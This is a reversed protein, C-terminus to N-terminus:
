RRRLVFVTGVVREAGGCEEVARIVGGWDQSYDHGCIIEAGVSQAWRIDKLTEEYTHDADLFVLGPAQGRYGEFFANKDQCVIRVNHKEVAELLIVETLRRHDAPRLGCPNWCFNDVAILQTEPRKAGALVRTSTGFLIGVEVIPRDPPAERVLEGLFRGEEISIEGWRSRQILKSTGLSYFPIYPLVALFRSKFQSINM